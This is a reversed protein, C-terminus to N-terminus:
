KSYEEDTYYTLLRFVFQHLQGAPINSVKDAGLDDLVRRVHQARKTMEGRRVNKALLAAHLFDFALGRVQTATVLPARLVYDDCERAVDDPLNGPM